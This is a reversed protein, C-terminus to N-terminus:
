STHVVDRYYANCAGLMVRAPDLRAQYWNVDM